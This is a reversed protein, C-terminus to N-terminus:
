SGEASGGLFPQKPEKPMVFSLALYAIVFPGGSGIVGVVFAIRVLTPDLNFYDAIGGCVGMIKKETRSRRLRKGDPSLKDLLSSTKSTPADSSAKKTDKSTTDKAKRSPNWSLVGFGLLIVLIGGIFPLAEVVGSLDPGSWVGLETLLYVIGTVILSLGAVTPLNFFGSEDSEDDEFYVSEVEHDSIDDLDLTTKGVEFPDPQRFSSTQEDTNASSSRSRPRNRETSMM